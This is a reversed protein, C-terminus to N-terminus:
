SEAEGSQAACRECDFQYGHECLPREAYNPHAEAIWQNFSKFMARSDDTALWRGIASFDHTEHYICPKGSATRADSHDVSVRGHLQDDDIDGWKSCAPCRLQVVPDGDRQIMRLWPQEDPM